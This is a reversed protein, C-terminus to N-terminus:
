LGQPPDNKWIATYRNGFFPPSQKSMKESAGNRKARIDDAIQFIDEEPSAYPTELYHYAEEIIKFGYEKLADSLHTVTFHFIHSEPCHLRWKEKYFQACFSDLNPGSMFIYGKSSVLSTLKRLFGKPDPVHEIVGRAIILDFSNVPLELTELDGEFFTNTQLVQKARQVSQNSLDTGWFEWNDRNMRELLYGGGCGVDLLKGSTIHRYIFDLELDHAKERLKALTKEQRVAVLQDYYFNRGEQNLRTKVYVVKCQRCEVSLFGEYIQEGWLDFSESSCWPCAELTEFYEQRKALEKLIDDNTM